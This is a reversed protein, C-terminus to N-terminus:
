QRLTERGLMMAVHGRTVATSLATQWYRKFTAESWHFFDVDRYMSIHSSANAFFRTAAPGWAGYCEVSFPIFTVERTAVRRHRELAADRSAEKIREGEEALATRWHPRLTPTTSAVPVM